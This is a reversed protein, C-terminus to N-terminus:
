GQNPCKQWCLISDKISPPLIPPLVGGDTVMVWRTYPLLRCQTSWSAKPCHTEPQIHNSINPPQTTHQAVSPPRSATPNHNRHLWTLSESHLSDSSRNQLLIESSSGLEWPKGTPVLYRRGAPESFSWSENKMITQSEKLWTGAPPCMTIPHPSTAALTSPVQVFLFM